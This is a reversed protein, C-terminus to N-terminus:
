VDSSIKSSIIEPYRSRLEEIYAEWASWVALMKEFLIQCQHEYREDYDDFFQRAVKTTIVLWDDSGSTMEIAVTNVYETMSEILNSHLQKLNENQFYNEPRETEYIYEWIRDKYKKQEYQSNVNRWEYWNKVWKSDILQWLVSAVQYDIDSKLAGNKPENLADRIADVLKLTLTDRQSQRNTQSKRMFLSRINNLYERLKNPSNLSYSIPWRRHRLDFPLSEGSTHKSTNMVGILRGEGMIALAYGLEVLVNSNPSPRPDSYVLTADWVFVDSSRIKALIAEAIVPTGGLGKTDRDVSILVVDERQIQKAARKLCDEIFNRNERTPSDSQWSWFITIPGTTKAM